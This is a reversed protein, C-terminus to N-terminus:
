HPAVLEFEGSALWMVDGDLDRIAVPLDRDDKDVAVVARVAGSPVNYAKSLLKVRDGIKIAMAM